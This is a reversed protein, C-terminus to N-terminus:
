HLDKGESPQAGTLGLQQMMQGSDYYRREEVIQGRENLKVFGGGRLDMKKNTAPIEGVPTTLPGDHTGMFRVEAAGNRDDKEFVRLAEMRIDSFGKIFSVADEEIAQRGRLPEPYFPDYAVADDAYLASVAKADHDNMAATLKKLTDELKGM